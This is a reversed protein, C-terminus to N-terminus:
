AVGRTRVCTRTRPSRGVRNGSRPRGAAAAAALALKRPNSVRIRTTSVRHAPTRAIIRTLEDFIGHATWVAPRVGRPLHPIRAAALDLDGTIDAVIATKQEETLSRPDVGPFYARDLAADEGLDRLFNIKQFAAGLARAGETIEHERSAPLPAGDFFGRVCMEGVVEASGHVYTALGDADHGDHETDSRMSAFFPRWLDPGIGTDRAARAFAHAILDSSFGQAVAAEIRHEFRDLEARAEAPDATDWAGDVIEDAVRVMGYISTIHARVPPPLTRVALSFSTSYRTLVQHAARQATATYLDAPRPTM